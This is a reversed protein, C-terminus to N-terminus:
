IKFGRDRLVQKAESVSPLEFPTDKLRVGTKPKLLTVMRIQDILTGNSHALNVRGAIGMQHGSAVIAEISGYERLLSRAGVDGIGPVGPIDDAVDGCLALYDGLQAPPVGMKKVVDKVRYVDHGHTNAKWLVRGGVLVMLDKDGTCVYIRHIKQDYKWKTFKQVLSNIIDDGEYGVITRTCVGLEELVESAQEAVDCMSLHRKKGRQKRPRERSRKYQPFLQRKILLEKKCDFVVVARKVQNQKFYRLFGFVAQVVATREPDEQPAFCPQAVFPYLHAHGDIIHLSM